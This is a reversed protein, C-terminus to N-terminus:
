PRWEERYARVMWRRWWPLLLVLEASRQRAADQARMDDDFRAQLTAMQQQWTETHVLGRAREANYRGLRDVETPSM